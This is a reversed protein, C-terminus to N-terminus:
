SSTGGGICGAQLVRNVPPLVPQPSKLIICPEAHPIMCRNASCTKGIRLIPFDWYLPHNLSDNSLMKSKKRVQEPPFGAEFFLLVKM